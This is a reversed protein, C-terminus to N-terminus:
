EVFDPKIKMLDEKNVLELYCTRELFFAKGDNTNIFSLESPPETCSSSLKYQIKTGGKLTLVYLNGSAKKLNAQLSKTSIFKNKVGVKLVRNIDKFVVGERVEDYDRDSTVSFLILTDLGNTIKIDDAAPFNLFRFDEFPIDKNNNRLDLNEFYSTRVAGTRDYFKVGYIHPYIKGNTKFKGIYEVWNFIPEDNSGLNILTAKKPVSEPKHITDMM